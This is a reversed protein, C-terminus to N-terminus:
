LKVKKLGMIINIYFYAIIAIITKIFYNGITILISDNFNIIIAYSFYMFIFVDVFLVGVITLIAILKKSKEVTKLEKFSYSGLILMIMFSLPYFVFIPWNEFFLNQFLLTVDSSISPILLSTAIVLLECTIISTMDVIIIKKIDDKGYRNVFYYLIYLIGVSFIISINIDMGFVKVLKFSFLFSLISYVVSILYFVHKGFYKHVIYLSGFCIIMFLLFIFESM